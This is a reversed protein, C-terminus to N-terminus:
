DVFCRLLQINHFIHRNEMVAVGIEAHQGSFSDGHDTVAGLTTSLSEAHTVGTQIDDDTDTGALALDSGFLVTELGKGDGIGGFAGVDDVDQQGIFHVAGDVFGLDSGVDGGSLSEREGVTEADDEVFDLRRLIGIDDHDSGLAGTGFFAFAEHFAEANGAENGDLLVGGAFGTFNSEGDGLGFTKGTGAHQFAGEFLFGVFVEEAFLVNEAATDNVQHLVTEFGKDFGTIGVFHGVEFTDVFGLEDHVEDVFATDLFHVGNDGVGGFPTFIVVTGPDNIGGDLFAHFFGEAADLLTFESGFPDGFGAVTGRDEFGFTGGEGFM